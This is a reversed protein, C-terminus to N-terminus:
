SDILTCLYLSGRSNSPHRSTVLSSHARAQRAFRSPCYFRSLVFACQSFFHLACSRFLLPFSPLLRLFSRSSLASSLHNAYAHEGRRAHTCAHQIKIKVWGRCSILPGTAHWARRNRRSAHRTEIDHFNLECASICFSRGARLHAKARSREGRDIPTCRAHDTVCRSGPAILSRAWAHERSISVSDRKGERPPESDLRECPRKIRIRRWFISKGFAFSFVDTRERQRGKERDICHFHLARPSQSEYHLSCTSTGSVGYLLGRLSSPLLIHLSTSIKLIFTRNRIKKPSTCCDKTRPTTWMIQIWIVVIAKFNRRSFDVRDELKIRYIVDITERRWDFYSVRLPYRTAM